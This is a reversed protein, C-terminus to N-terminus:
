HSDSVCKTLIGQWERDLDNIINSKASCLDMLTERWPSPSGNELVKHISCKILQLDDYQFERWRAGLRKITEM